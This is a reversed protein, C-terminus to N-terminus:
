HILRKLYNMINTNNKHSINIIFYFLQVTSIKNTKFNNIIISDEM